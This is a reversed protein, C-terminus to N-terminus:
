KKNLNTSLVSLTWTSFQWSAATTTAGQPTTDSAWAQSSAQSYRSWSPSATDRTDKPAGSPCSQAATASTTPTPKVPQRGQRNDLRRPSVSRARGRSRAKWRRGRQDGHRHVHPRELNSPMTICIPNTGLRPERGGFPVVGKSSRGSDATMIGILGESSAMLPYDAVRGVHSQRFVTAAAVGHQKAKEITIEMARESVVYGFGWNGDIVTTTSSERIIDFPAGPVIHGRKVRDIYTPIQIIGHSDHGALNAGISHKSVIAAEEESAGAGILLQAAINQLRDAQITPM